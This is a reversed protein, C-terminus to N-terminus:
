APLVAVDYAAFRRDRTVITLGEVQAQAILMRDFPDGHHRPLAGAALAHAVSIPLTLFGSRALGWALDGPLSLKGQSLKIAAEWVSAASVVVENAVDEIAARAAPRLRKSQGFSWIM